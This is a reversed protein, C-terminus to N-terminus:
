RAPQVRSSTGSASQRSLTFVWTALYAPVARINAARDFRKRVMRQLIAGQGRAFHAVNPLTRKAGLLPSECETAGSGFHAM